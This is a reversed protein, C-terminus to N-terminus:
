LDIHTITMGSVIIQKIESERNISCNKLVINAYMDFGCLTGEYSDGLNTYLIIKSDVKDVLYKM